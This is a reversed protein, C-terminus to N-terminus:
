LFQIIVKILYWDNNKGSLFMRQATSPVRKKEGTTHEHCVPKGLVEEMFHEHCEEVM